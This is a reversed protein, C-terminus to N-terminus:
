ARLEAIVNAAVDCFCDIRTTPGSRQKLVEIELVNRRQILRDEEEITKDVKRELYYSERFLGLVVDADQEISGSDRLDSLQPRKDERKEVERNLQCLGIVPVELEKALGKLGGSIETMEQVREGRYRSSPKILGLHDVFVAALKGGERAAKNAMQRSRAAIQSLTVGPQPEIWIPIGAARKEAHYLRELAADSLSRAEAIGRYSIEDVERPDYALAALVRQALELGNMECSHFAVPGIRQAAAVAVYLAALTKGMAPRGAIVIFQSPGMGLTARDLSPIGFPVGHEETTRRLHYVREMALRASAGLTTRKVGDSLGATAVADLTEIMRAAYGSPSTVSDTAMAAAAAQGTEMVLRMHAAQTILKAYDPASAITTTGRMLRAMYAGVTIGEGLDANGLIAKMLGFDIAEGADRRECMAEFIQRHVPEFFDAPTVYPRARDLAEARHLIAGLLAQESEISHPPKSAADVTM